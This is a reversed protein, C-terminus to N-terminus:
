PPIVARGIRDRNVCHFKLASIGQAEERTVDIFKMNSNWLKFISNRVMRMLSTMSEARDCIKRAHGHTGYRAAKFNFENFATNVAEKFTSPHVRIVETRAAWNPSRGYFCPRM